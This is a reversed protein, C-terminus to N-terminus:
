ETIEASFRKLSWGYGFPGWAELHANELGWGALRDKTWDNARRLGPSATLRPGIVETLYLITEMVKSRNMGEDKIRAIADNTSATQAGCFQAGALLLAVFLLRLKM